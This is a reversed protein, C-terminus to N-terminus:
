RYARIIKGGQRYGLEPFSIRLDIKPADIVHDKAICILRAFVVAVHGAHGGKKGSQGLRDRAGRDVTKTGRAHIRNSHGRAPDLGAIILQGNCAANFAHAPCRKHHGLGGCGKRAAVRNVVCRDTPTKHIGRHLGRM